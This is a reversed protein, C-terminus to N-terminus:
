KKLDGLDSSSLLIKVYQIALIYFLTSLCSINQLISTINDIIIYGSSDDPYYPRGFAVINILRAILCIPYTISTYLFVRDMKINRQLYFEFSTFSASILFCVALIIIQVIRIEDLLEKYNAM